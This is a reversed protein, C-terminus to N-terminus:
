YEFAAELEEYEAETYIPSDYEDKGHNDDEGDVLRVSACSVWVQGPIFEPYFLLFLSRLAVGYMGVCASSM